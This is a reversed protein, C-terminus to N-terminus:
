FPLEEETDPSDPADETKDAAGDMERMLMTNLLANLYDDRSFYGLKQWQKEAFAAQEGEINLRVWVSSSVSRDISKKPERM